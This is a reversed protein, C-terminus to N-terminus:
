VADSAVVRDGFEPNLKLSTAIRVMWGLSYDTAFM